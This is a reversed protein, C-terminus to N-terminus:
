PQIATPNNKGEFHPQKTSTCPTKQFGYRVCSQRRADLLPRDYTVNSHAMQLTSDGEGGGGLEPPLPCPLWKHLM